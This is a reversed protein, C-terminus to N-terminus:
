LNIIKKRNYGCINIFLYIHPFRKCNICNIYKLIINYSSIKLNYIRHVFVTIQQLVCVYCANQLLGVELM